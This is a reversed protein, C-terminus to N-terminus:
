AAAKEREKIAKATAKVPAGEDNKLSKADEMNISLLASTGDERMTVGYLTNAKSMTYRNHTIVIFQTREALDKLISAYKDANSEDLAADVEDLVVFPSPNSTMIACILAISTLAREGGSLMNIHKIKKGPPTATIDVGVIYTDDKKPKAETDAATTTSATADDGSGDGNEAAEAKAATLQILEAKGGEFLVKFYRDFERNLSRFATESRAKITLDLEAIVKDLDAIAQNLDTVQRNLFEFRENTEQYEKMVEPDIGGILQLQYKLKEIRPRMAEPRENSREGAEIGEKVREAREGLEHSMEQELSDRRTELRALEVRMDGLRRELAHASSIKDSLTRQLQFFKQKKERETENFSSMARQTDKIREDLATLELKIDDLEKLVKPDVEPQKTEVEPAPRELRDALTTTDGHLSELDPVVKHAAELSKAAKLNQVAQGQRSGLGRVSEIIKSLPMATATQKKVQVAIELKSKARLERERLSSRESMLKQFKSQLETFEDSGTEEIELKALEKKADELTSEKEKWQRNFETLETSKTNIVRQLETWLGGYYQHHLAHLETELEERQELRKVQRQLSRLRPEIENLLMEAQGLNERAAQMKIVSQHRKLQFQKVGAAEDFFEKREQPTAVLISDIMGQGIVSYSRAGFNAQALMLQVDTLRVKKKNILYESDGDRYIRRAITVESFDLPLKGAENNFHLVVEAYSSRARKESGSFIVDEAKKGRLLKTSQEGLVWRIADAVNSKGSGNPGVIATIGRTKATPQIFELEKKEAFSKFGNMELKQLIM